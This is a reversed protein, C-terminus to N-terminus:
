PQMCLAIQIRIDAEPVNMEDGFNKAGDSGSIALLYSVGSLGAL